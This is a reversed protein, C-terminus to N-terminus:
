TIGNNKLRKEVEEQTRNCVNCGSRILWVEANKQKQNGRLVRSRQQKVSFTAPIYWCAIKGKDCFPCILEEYQGRM